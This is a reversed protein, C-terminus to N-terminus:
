AARNRLVVPERQQNSTSGRAVTFVVSGVPDCAYGQGRPDIRYRRLCGGDDAYGRRANQEPDGPLEFRDMRRTARDTIEGSTAQQVVSRDLAFFLTRGSDAYGM